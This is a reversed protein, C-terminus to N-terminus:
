LLSIVPPDILKATGGCLFTLNPAERNGLGAATELCLVEVVPGEAALRYQGAQVGFDVKVPATSVLGAPVRGIRTYINVVKRGAPAALKLHVQRVSINELNGAIVTEPQPQISLGDDIKPVIARQVVAQAFRDFQYTAIGM